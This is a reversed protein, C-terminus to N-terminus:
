YAPNTTLMTGVFALPAAPVCLGLGIMMTSFTAADIDGSLLDRGVGLVAARDSFYSAVDITMDLMDRIQRNVDAFGQVDNRLGDISQSLNNTATAHANLSQKFQVHKQELEVKIQECADVTQRRVIDKLKPFSDRESNGSSGSSYSHSSHSSSEGDRSSYSSDDGSYGYCKSVADSYSSENYSIERAM